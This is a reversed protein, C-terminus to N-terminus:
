LDKLTLPVHLGESDDTFIDAHTTLASCADEIERRSAEDPNMEPCALHIVGNELSIRISRGKETHDMIANIVGTVAASLANYDVKAYHSRSNLQIERKTDHKFRMDAM